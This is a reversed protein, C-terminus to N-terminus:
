FRKGVGIGYYVDDFYSSYGARLTITAGAKDLWSGKVDFSVGAEGFGGSGFLGPVSGDDYWSPGGSIYPRIRETLEYEAGVVLAGGYHLESDYDSAITGLRVGLYVNVGGTEDGYEGSEYVRKFLEIEAGFNNEDLYTPLFETGWSGASATTAGILTAAAIAIIKKM